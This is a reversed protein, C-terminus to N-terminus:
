VMNTSYLDQRRIKDAMIELKSPYCLTSYELNTTLITITHIYLINGHSDCAMASFYQSLVLSKFTLSTYFNRWRLGSDSTRLEEFTTTLSLNDIVARDVDDPYENCIQQFTKDYGALFIQCLKCSQSSARLTEWTDSLKTNADSFGNISIIAICRNCLPLTEPYM